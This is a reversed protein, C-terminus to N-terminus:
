KLSLRLRFDGLILKNKNKKSIYKQFSRSTELGVEHSANSSVTSAQM